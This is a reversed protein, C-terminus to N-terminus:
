TVLGFKGGLAADFFFFCFFIPVSHRYPDVSCVAPGPGSASPTPSTDLWACPPQRSGYTDPKRRRRRLLGGAARLRDWGDESASNSIHNAFAAAAVPKWGRAERILGEGRAAEPAAGRKLDDRTKRALAGGYAFTKRPRRAGM